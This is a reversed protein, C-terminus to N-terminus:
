WKEKEPNESNDQPNPQDLYPQEERYLRENNYSSSSFLMTYEKRGPLTTAILRITTKFGTWKIENDISASETTDENAIIAGYREVLNSLVTTYDSQNAITVYVKVLKNSYFAFSITQPRIGMLNAKPNRWIFRPLKENQSVYYHGSPLAARPIKSPPANWPISAFGAPETRDAFILTTLSNSASSFAALRSSAILAFATAAILFWKSNNLYKM